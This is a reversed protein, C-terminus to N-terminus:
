RSAPPAEIAELLVITWDDIQEPMLQREIAAGISGAAEATSLPAAAAFANGLWDPLKGGGSLDAPDLGDTMLLLREGQALEIEM